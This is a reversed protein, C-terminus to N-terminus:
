SVSTTFTGLPHDSIQTLHSTRHLSHQVRLDVDAGAETVAVLVVGEEETVVQHAAQM